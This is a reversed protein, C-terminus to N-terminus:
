AEPLYAVAKTPMFVTCAEGAAAVAEEKEVVVAVAAMVVPRRLLGVDITQDGVQGGPRLHVLGPM